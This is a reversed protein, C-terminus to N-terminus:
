EFKQKIFKNKNKLLVIRSRGDEDCYEYDSLLFGLKNAIKKIESHPPM